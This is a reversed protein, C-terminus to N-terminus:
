SDPVAGQSWAPPGPDVSSSSEKWASFIAYGPAIRRDLTDFTSYFVQRMSLFGGGGGGATSYDRPNFFTAIEPGTNEQHTAGIQFLIEYATKQKFVFFLRMYSPELTIWGSQMVQQAALRASD